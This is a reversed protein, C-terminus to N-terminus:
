LTASEKAGVSRHQTRLRKFVINELIKDATFGLGVVIILLAASIIAIEVVAELSTIRLLGFGVVSVALFGAIICRFAIKTYDSVVELTKERKNM